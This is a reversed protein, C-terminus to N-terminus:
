LKGGSLGKSLVAEHQDLNDAPNLNLHTVLAEDVVRM